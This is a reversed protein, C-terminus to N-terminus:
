QSQNGAPPAVSGGTEGTKPPLLPGGLAAVMTAARNRLTEPSAADHALATFLELAKAQEGSKLAGFAIIERAEARWPNGDALLPALRMELDARSQKDVLLYGTKLLALDALAKDRGGQAALEDLTKVAAGTDGAAAQAEAQRFRALVGYGGGKQVLAAFAQAAAKPDKALQGSATVFEEQFIDTV